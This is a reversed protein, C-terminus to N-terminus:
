KIENELEELRDFLRKLEKEIESLDVVGGLKGEIEVQYSKNYIYHLTDIKSKIIKINM